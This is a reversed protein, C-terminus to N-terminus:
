INALYWEVFLPIGEQLKVKPSFGLDKKSQEIDAYTVEVEGPSPGKLIVEAKKNLNNEILQILTFLDEPTQNGINYVGWGKEQECRNLAAITGDIADTIFTFDRRMKGENYLHIPQNECIARTFSYYAMDPRGWPGYVTFYRLGVMAIGYLHHYSFAMLENAKKTAAYLNAPQDTVDNVSFPMKKNCGYVSSSSAYVLSIHPCQRCSELISLFGDVNSKLYIDPNERAYRVGAQAALHLLHTVKNKEILATLFPRNNIDGEHVQVGMKYLIQSRRRKLLPDYYPYYNDIGVVTHGMEQLRKAAHFGIFGAVGTILVVKKSM